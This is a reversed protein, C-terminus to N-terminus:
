SERCRRLSFSGSGHQGMRYLSVRSYTEHKGGSKMGGKIKDFLFKDFVFRRSQAEVAVGPFIRFKPWLWLRRRRGILNGGCFTKNNYTKRFGPPEKRRRDRGQLRSEM